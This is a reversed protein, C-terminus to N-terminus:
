GNDKLRLAVLIGSLAVLSSALFMGGGWRAYGWGNLLFGVMIGLGYSVSNLVSQGTTGAEEPTRRDMMLITVVHFMGYTIAHLLQATIVWILATSEFLIAWRIAAIGLAFLVMSKLSFRDVLKRTGAMVLIEAISAMAWIWGIAIGSYGHQALHISLFGYYTGHSVLMLFSVLLLTPTDNQFLFAIGCRKRSSPKSQLAPNLLTVGLHLFGGLFIARVFLRTGSSDLLWGFGITMLIFGISGWARIHGYGSKDEGLGEVTTAEVFGIVPAHFFGYIGVLLMVAGPNTTFGLGGWILTSALICFLLFPKRCRWRDALFGWIGPFLVTAGMRIASVIGIQPENLGINQCYLPFYPLYIGLVLFYFFYNSALIARIPMIDEIFTQLFGCSVLGWPAEMLTM